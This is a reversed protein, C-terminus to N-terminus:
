MSPELQGRVESQLFAMLTELGGKELFFVPVAWPAFEGFSKLVRGQPIYIEYDNEFSTRQSDLKRRAKNYM